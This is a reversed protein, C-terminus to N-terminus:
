FILRRTFEIFGFAVLCYCYFFYNKKIITLNNMTNPMKKFTDNNNEILTQNSTSKKFKDPECALNQSISQPTTNRDVTQAFQPYLKLLDIKDVKEM